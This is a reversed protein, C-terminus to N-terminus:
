PCVIPAAVSWAWPQAGCKSFNGGTIALDQVNVLNDANIDPSGTAGCFIPLTGGFNGGVCSLDLISVSGDNNADGGWLRTNKNALNGLVTITDENDLYLGHEALIKYSSGGPMFPVNLFNYAGLGSNFAVPSVGPPTFNTGQEILSVTGADVNNGPRGQMTVFGSITAYGCVTVPPLPGALSHTLAAGDIDTLTTTGFTMNVAGPAVGTLTIQALTGSGSVATQPSVHAVGFRCVGAACNASWGGAIAAPYATDFFSNVFAGSASALSDDYTVEIQYGYLGVVQDLDILVTTSEGTCFLPDVTSLSLQTLGCGVNNWPTFDIYDSVQNGLGGPNSTANYPGTTDGWWNNEGNVTIYSANSRMGYTNNYLCNNNAAVSTFVATTCGSQCQYIEIGVDFGTVVNNNATVGLNDPGYGSDAEIGFTSTNDGGVFVVTNGSVDVTLPSNPVELGDGTAALMDEAGFPSPIADPPDSAVIGWSYGGAKIASVSNNSIQGNGDIKYVCTHCASLTNGLIDVDSYDLISTAVWSGGSYAIGSVNNNAVTGTGQIAGIQIGNQATVGTTGAGTVTNGTVNVTLPTTDSANLAMANKQFDHINSDKVTISRAVDDDNFAYIAVGHQGGSFPTDRIDKVEVTDVTGGANRFAIGVFKYNANGNGAGDVVLNKITANDVGHVYVIPYNNGTTTFFLPLSAPSEIITTAGAGQLTLQKDVEVQEVYTGPGIDITHGNLTDPDDIAAQITCFTESTDLNTVVGACTSITLNDILFGNGSNAPVATGSARFLMSDVTRSEPPECNRFYDEWTNGTYVLAGDVYLKLIDNNVGDVFQITVRIRHPITRSLGTAVQYLEFNVLDGCTGGNTTDYNYFNVDLGGPTDAMQIWSMRAGDGRDPSATIALGPQEAGPVTSAFDWTAEFFSQRVGGSMGGNLATTEGAEDVTSKSFTQDGFSGSTVANSIRLSQTGFTGYGYSNTVVAVDYSGTMSWGDQGNVNGLSYTEFNVGITDAIVSATLAIILIVVVTLAFPVTFKRQM